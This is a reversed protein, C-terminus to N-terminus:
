RYSLGRTATAWYGGAEVRRGDREDPLLGERPRKRVRNGKSLVRSKQCDPTDIRRIMDRVAKAEARRSSAVAEADDKRVPVAGNEDCEKGHGAQVLRGARSGERGPRTRASLLPGEGGDNRDVKEPIVEGPAFEGPAPGLFGDDAQDEGDTGGETRERRGPDRSVRRRPGKEGEHACLRAQQDGPELASDRCGGRRIKERREGAEM